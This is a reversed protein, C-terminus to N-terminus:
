NAVNFSQTPGQTWPGFGKHICFWDGSASGSPPQYPCYGGLIGLFGKLNELNKFNKFIAHLIKLFAGIYKSFRM